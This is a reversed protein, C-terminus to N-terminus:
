SARQRHLSPDVVAQMAAEDLTHGLFANIRAATAEPDNLADTHAVTLWEIGPQAAWAEADARYRAYTAALGEARASPRGSRALMAEQSRLVESLDREMFIVRYSPGVPLHRLLPAVIKVVRGDAEPLWARDHALAKVRAHEYYGRPNSEDAQRVDDTYPTLGGAVLMQMMMSTGSRPLGSVVTLTLSELIEPAVGVPASAAAESPKADTQEQETQQAQLAEYEARRQDIWDTGRVARWAVIGRYGLALLGLSGSAPIEYPTGPPPPSLPTDSVPRLRIVFASLFPRMSRHAVRM